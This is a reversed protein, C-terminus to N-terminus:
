AAQIHLALSRWRRPRAPRQWGPTQKWKYEAARLAANVSNWSGSIFRLGNSSSQRCTDVRCAPTQSPLQGDSNQTQRDGTGRADRMEWGM